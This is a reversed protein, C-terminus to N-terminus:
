FLKYGQDKTYLVEVKNGIKKKIRHIYQPLVRSTDEEYGWIDTFLKEKSVFDNQSMLYKLIKFEKNTTDVLKGDIKLEGLFRDLELNKFILSTELLYKSSKRKLITNFISIILKDDYKNKIVYDIHNDYFRTMQKHNDIEYCVVTHLHKNNSLIQEVTAYSIDKVPINDFIIMHVKKDVFDKLQAIKIKHLEIEFYKKIKNIISSKIRTNKDFVLIIQLKSKNNMNKNYLFYFSYLNNKLIIKLFNM